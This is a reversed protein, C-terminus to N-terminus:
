LRLDDGDIIMPRPSGGSQLAGSQLAVSAQLRPAGPFSVDQIAVSTGSEEDIWYDEMGNVLMGHSGISKGQCKVAAEKRTWIRLFRWLFEEEDQSADLVFLREDDQFYYIMVAELSTKKRPISRAEIDVGISGYDTVGVALHDGSVSMNFGFFKDEGSRLLYPKGGEATVFTDSNDLPPLALRSFANNM